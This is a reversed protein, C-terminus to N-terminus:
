KETKKKKNGAGKGNPKTLHFRWFGLFRHRPLSFPFPPVFLRCRRRHSNHVYFHSLCTSHILSFHARPITHSPSGAAAAAPPPPVSGLLADTATARVGGGGGDTAALTLVRCPPYPLSMVKRNNINGVKVINNPLLVKHPVCCDVHKESVFDHTQRYKKGLWSEDETDPAAALASAPALSSSSSTIFRVKTDDNEHLM